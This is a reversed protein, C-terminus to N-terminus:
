SQFASISVRKAEEGREVLPKVHREEIQLLKAIEMDTPYKERQSEIHAAIKYHRALSLEDAATLLGHHM